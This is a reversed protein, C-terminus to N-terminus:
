KYRGCVAILYDVILAQVAGAQMHNHNAGFSSLENAFRKPSLRLRDVCVRFHQNTEHGEDTDSYFVFSDFAGAIYAERDAESAALWSKYSFYHSLASTSYLIEAILFLKLM